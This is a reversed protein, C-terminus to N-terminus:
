FKFREPQPAHELPSLATEFLKVSSLAGHDGRTVLTGSMVPLEGQVYFLRGGKALQQELEEPAIPLSGTVVIVDYPAQKSWGRAGDGQEVTVNGIGARKLNGEAFTKMDPHLEVCYVHQARKALLAALYGSGVGIQLVKDSAKVALEQVVRAELKPQWMKKGCPLPLEMDVFALARNAEPVFEERRVEFLLELIQQDLVDWPRIQQEVMNFRAEEWNM